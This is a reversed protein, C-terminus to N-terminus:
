EPQARAGGSYAYRLVRVTNATALIAAGTLTWAGVTVWPLGNRALGFALLPVGLTWLVLIAYQLGRSPMEHPTPHTTGFGSATFASMWSFAPLLRMGMGLIIQGLFGLLGFVGYVMVWALQWGPAFVLYLGIAASLILYILAQLAHFMGLDPRPLHVPPRRPRHLMRGVDVFFLAIGAVLIVAFLRAAADSVPLMVSVGLVGVELTVACLVISHGEPAESPLFMPLLRYGVGVVMMTAWGVVALHVHGFVYSLQSGPLITLNKNIAILMGALIALQLNAYALGVLIRVGQPSKSTRLAAWVRQSLFTLAAYTPVAATVIGWYSDIWFHAVIGAVGLLVAGCAWNDLVDAPLTTRLAFPAVLYTAGLISCTIWGLTILHVGAFMRAHYFFGAIEDPQVAVLLLAAVLALHGFAFYVVPLTRPPVKPAQSL